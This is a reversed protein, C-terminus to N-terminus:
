LKASAEVVVTDGASPVAAPWGLEHRIRRRLTDAARAEGHVVSVAAPARPGSALWAVLEDGDAHASLSDVLVVRARVPVDEGFVRLMTAGRLLAEGRTGAAQFGALLIANRDNPAVQYLHHLVRGGALMGSASLVIMPGRRTTLRKSDEVSRVLHVGNSLEALQRADLRHEADSDLFLQTASVAMPSNLFTPVSPIRGERRLGALLHLVTQARGVAFVPVLVIGGRSVTSNVADALSEAADADSHARDGYTSEVVIHDASPPPAPPLMIPDDSRGLDGSFLVSRGGDSVWVSAAGLIHGAPSFRVEIGEAVEFASGVPHARLRKLARKADDQTFLPLAPHHRSSCRKNAYRADEEQLHATDPLLIRVLAATAPTCWIHGRFGHRVLGPLYGSHDIHAHTLVVADLSAPDVPFPEWNMQRLRKVGQFLGCDVLVRALSSEVLFRSGTVTEAAGWFTVRMSM